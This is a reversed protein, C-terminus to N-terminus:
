YRRALGSVADLVTPANDALLAAAQARLRRDLAFGVVAGAAAGEAVSKAVRKATDDREGQKPRRVIALALGVGGGILSGRVVTHM